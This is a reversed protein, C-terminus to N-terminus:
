MKYKKLKDYLISRDIELLEAAKKKNGKTETLARDIALKEAEDKAMRLSFNNENKSDTLNMKLQLRDFHEPRLVGTSVYNLAREIMNELERVNGQWSYAELLQLAEQTIGTVHVGLEENLKEIFYDVLLPIDGKRERLPPIDLEVVNIRYYLDERFKGESVMEALDQNTTFVFRVDVQIRKGGIVQVEKEQVVRLLKAQLQIPLSNIEDLLLTGGDAQQIKGKKGGRMAGTFSGEAYGFLEAELLNEPIAACNLIVFPMNGRESLNHISHAFLEKGTGSEGNILIVSRSRAVRKTLGILQQLQSDQTIIEDINYKTGVNEFYNEKYFQVQKNLFSMKTELQKLTLRSGTSTFASAGLVESGRRILLRNIVMTRGEYEFFEEVNEKKTRLVATLGENPVIDYLKKGIPFPKQLHYLEAYKETMYVIRSETDIIVVVGMSELFERGIEEFVIERIAVREGLSIGREVKIKPIVWSYLFLIDYKLFFKQM